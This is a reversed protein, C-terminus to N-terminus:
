EVHRRMARERAIEGVTEAIHKDVLVMCDDALKAFETKSLMGLSSTDRKSQDIASSAPDSDARRGKSQKAKGTKPGRM